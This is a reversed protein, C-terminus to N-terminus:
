PKTEIQFVSISVSVGNKYYFTQGWSTTVKKYENASSKRVVIIRTIINKGEMSNETTVGEPYKKALQSLYAKYEAPTTPNTIVKVEKSDDTNDEVKTEKKDEVVKDDAKVKTETQAFTKISSEDLKGDTFNKETKISGDPYYEKIVGAEKGDKWDGEIAIKGNEHYYKQKGSRKGDDSYAFEYKPKGNEHYYKYNGVWKVGKWNGEESLKGSEYYLKAYGDPKNSIYPIESKLNGNSYYEKWMGEKKGDKYNGEELIKTKDAPAFKVWMGQKMNSGDVVNVPKGQYTETQSFLNCIAITQFLIILILIRM